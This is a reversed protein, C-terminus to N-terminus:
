STRMNTDFPKAGAEEFSNVGLGHEKCLPKVQAALARLLELAAKEDQPDERKLVSIFTFWPNAPSPRM